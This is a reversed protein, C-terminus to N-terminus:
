CLLIFWSVIRFLFWLYRIIHLETFFSPLLSVILMFKSNTEAVCVEYLPIKKRQDCLSEQNRSRHTNLALTISKERERKRELTHRIGICLPQNPNQFIIILTARRPAPKIGEVVGRKSSIHFKHAGFRKLQFQTVIIHRKSPPGVQM